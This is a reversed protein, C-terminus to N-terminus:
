RKKVSRKVSRTAKKAGNKVSRAGKRATRTVQSVSIWPTAFLSFVILMLGSILFMANIVGDSFIQEGHYARISYEFSSISVPETLEFDLRYHTDESELVKDLMNLDLYYYDRAADYKMYWSADTAWSDNAAIFLISKINDIDTSFIFRDYTHYDNVNNGSGVFAFNFLNTEITSDLHVSYDYGNQLVTAPVDNVSGSSVYQIASIAFSADPDVVYNTADSNEAYAIVAPIAILIAIAIVSYAAANNRARDKSRATSAM